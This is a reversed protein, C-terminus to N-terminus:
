VLQPADIGIALGKKELIDKPTVGEINKVNLDAGHALLLQVVDERGAAAAAHLPTGAPGSIDKCDAVEDVDAGYKLLIEIVDLRGHCSALRLSRSGKIIAGQQLFCEVIEVSATWCAKFLLRGPRYFRSWLPKNPTNPDFGLHFLHQVFGLYKSRPIDENDPGGSAALSLFNGGHRLERFFVNPEVTHYKLLIGLPDEQFAADVTETTVMKSVAVNNQQGFVLLMEVVNAHGSQAAALLMRELNLCGVYVQTRADILVTETELVIQATTSQQLALSLQQLEGRGSLDILRQSPLEPSTM